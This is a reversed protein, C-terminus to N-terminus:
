YMDDWYTQGIDIGGDADLLTGEEEEKEREWEQVRDMLNAWHEESEVGELWRDEEGLEEVRIWGKRMLGTVSKEPEPRIRWPDTFPRGSDEIAGKDRLYQALGDQYDFASANMMRHGIWYPDWGGKRVNQEQERLEELMAERTPLLSPDRIVNAAFLSQASDSFCNPVRIPLGIFMLAGPPQLPSLSVIHRHLPFLYRTNTTLSQSMSRSFNTRATSDVVVVREAELFPFRLEYGTALIISEVDRAVSGDVFVIGDTTFHSIDPKM